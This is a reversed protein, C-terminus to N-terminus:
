IAFQRSQDGFTVPLMPLRFLDDWEEFDGKLREPRIAEHDARVPRDAEHGGRILPSDSDHLLVQTPLFRFSTLGNEAAVGLPEPSQGAM